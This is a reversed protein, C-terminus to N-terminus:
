LGCAAVLVRHQALFGWLTVQVCTQPCRRTQSGASSCHPPSARRERAARMPCPDQTGQTSHPAGPEAGRHPAPAPFPPTSPRRLAQGKLPSRPAIYYPGGQLGSRREAAEAPRPPHLLDDHPQLPQGKGKLLVHLRLLASSQQNEPWPCHPRSGSDGGGGEGGAM